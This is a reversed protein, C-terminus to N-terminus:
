GHWILGGQYMNKIYQQDKEALPNNKDAQFPPIMAGPYSAAVQKEIAATKASIQNIASQLGKQQAELKHRRRYCVTLENFQTLQQSGQNYIRNESQDLDENTIGPSSLYELDIQEKEKELHARANHLIAYQRFLSQLHAADTPELKDFCLPAEHTGNVLDVSLRRAQSQLTSYAPKLTSSIFTTSKVLQALPSSLQEAFHIRFRKWKIRAVVPPKIFTQELGTIPNKVHWYADSKDVM